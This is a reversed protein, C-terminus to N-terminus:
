IFKQIAKIFESPNELQIINESNRIEKFTINDLHSIISRVDDLTSLAHNESWLILIPTDISNIHLDINTAFYNSILYNFTLNRYPGGSNAYRRMIDVTRQNVNKSYYNKIYINAGYPSTCLNYFMKASQSMNLFIKTKKKVVLNTESFLNTPNSLIIKHFNSKNLTASSLVIDCSNNSTIAIVSSGIVETIFDNIIQAFLYADYQINPKDSAGFGLLDIKFVKYNFYLENTDNFEELSTGFNMSHILLLPTGYGNGSVTYRIKGYKHEYFKTDTDTNKNSSVYDIAKNIVFPIALTSALLIKKSNKM